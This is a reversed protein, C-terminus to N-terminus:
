WQSARVCWFEVNQRRLTDTYEAHNQCYVAVTEGFLMFRNTEIASVHHTEQSTHVWHKISEYL